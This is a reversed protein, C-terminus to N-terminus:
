GRMREVFVVMRPGAPSEDMAGTCLILGLPRLGRLRAVFVVVWAVRPTLEM